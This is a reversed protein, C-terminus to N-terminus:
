RKIKWNFQDPAGSWWIWTALTCAYVAKYMGIPQSRTSVTKWVFSFNQIM